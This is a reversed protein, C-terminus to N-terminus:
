PMLQECGTSNSGASTSPATARAGGCGAGSRTSPRSAPATCSRAGRPRRGPAARRASPRARGAAEARRRRPRPRQVQAVGPMPSRGRAGGIPVISPRHVNGSGLAHRARDHRGQGGCSRRRRTDAGGHPRLRAEHGGHRLEMGHRYGTVIDRRGDGNNDGVSIGSSLESGAGTLLFGRNSTAVNELVVEQGPALGTVGAAYSADNGQWFVLLDAKGDRNTDGLEALDPPRMSSARLTATRPGRTASFTEGGTVAPTFFVSVRYDDDFALDARGDGNVDGPAILSSRRVVNGYPGNGASPAFVGELDADTIEFGDNGLDTLDVNGSTRGFVVFISGEEGWDAREGVVVEARGDGNVDALGTLAGPNVRMGTISFGPHDAAPGRSPLAQQGFSVQVVSDDPEAVIASDEIDDGNVDGVGAVTASPDAYINSETWPATPLTRLLDADARTEDELAAHARAPLLVALLVVLAAACLLAALEGQLTAKPRVLRQIPLM